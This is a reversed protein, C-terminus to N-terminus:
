RPVLEYLNPNGAVLLRPRMAPIGPPAEAMVVVQRTRSWGRIMPAYDAVFGCVVIRHGLTHDVYATYALPTAWDWPAIVIADDHTMAAVTAGVNAPEQDDRMLYLDRGTVLERALAVAFLVAVLREAIQARAPTVARLAHEAALAAGLAVVAYLTFVYREPDAEARYSGGFLAPVIAAFFLALAVIPRAVAFFALGILAAVVVSESYDAVLEPVFHEATRRISAVTGLRMLTPGASWETGGVLARFGAPSSPHHDDFFPRGPAIGLTLTPDARAATMQASRLPLYAYSVAVIALAACIGGLAARAPLRRAAVLLLGGALLLVTTSDLALAIGGTAFALPVFRREARLAWRIGFAIALLAATFGATHADAYTSRFWVTHAFAFLWGAPIAFLPRVELLLAIGCITAAALAVAVASLLNLRAAVSAIPIAHVWIWGAIAYLPYGTPYPIGGVWAVTQLDGTDWFGVSTRVTTVLVVLAGVFTAAVTQRGSFRLFM